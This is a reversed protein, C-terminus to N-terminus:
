RASWQTWVFQGGSFTLVLEQRQCAELVLGLLSAKLSGRPYRHPGCWPVWQVPDEVLESGWRRLVLLGRRTAQGAQPEPLTADPPYTLFLVTLEEVGDNDLDHWRHSAVHTAVRFSGFRQKVLAALYDTVNQEGPVRRAGLRERHQLLYAVEDSRPHDTLPFASCVGSRLGYGTQRAYILYPGAQLRHLDCSSNLPSVLEVTQGSVGYIPEVLELQFTRVFESCNFRQDCANGWGPRGGRAFGVFVADATQTRREVQAAVDGSSRCSCAFALPGALAAVLLTLLKIM